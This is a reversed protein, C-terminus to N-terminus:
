EPIGDWGRRDWVKHVREWIDQPMRNQWVGGLLRAFESNSRAMSKIRDIYAPGHKALLDELPGASLVEEIEVSKYKKHTALHVGL